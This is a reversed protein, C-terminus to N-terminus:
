GEGRLLSLQSSSKPELKVPPRRAVPAKQVDYVGSIKAGTSIYVYGKCVSDSVHLLTAGYPRFKCKSVPPKQNPCHACPSM